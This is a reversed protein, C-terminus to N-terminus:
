NKDEITPDLISNIRENSLLEFAQTLKIEKQSIHDTLTAEITYTGPLYIDESNEDYAEFTLGMPQEIKQVFFRSPLRRLVAPINHRESIKAGQPNFMEVDCTVHANLDRDLEYGTFLLHIRVTIEKIPYPISSISKGFPGRKVPLEEWQRDFDSNDTVLIIGKFMKEEHSLSHTHLQHLEEIIGKLTDQAEGERTKAEALLLQYIHHHKFVLDRLIFKAEEKLLQTEESNRLEIPTFEMIDIIKNVYRVDGTIFFHNSMYQAAGLFNAPIDLFPRAKDALSLLEKVPWHARLALQIPDNQVGGLHLSHILVPHEEFKVGSDTIWKVIEKPYKKALATIVGSLYDICSLDSAEKIIQKAAKPSPNVYYFEIKDILLPHDKINGAFCSTFTFVLLLLAKLANM